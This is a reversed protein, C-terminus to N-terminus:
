GGKPSPRRRSGGQPAGRQAAAAAPAAEAGHGGRQGLGRLATQAAPQGGHAADSSAPGPYPSSGPGAGGEPADSPLSPARAGPDAGPADPAAVRAPAPEPHGASPVRGGRHRARPAAPAGHPPSHRRGGAQGPVRASHRGPQGAPLPQPRCPPAPAGPARVPTPGGQDAPHHLPLLRGPDQGRAASQRSAAGPRAGHRLPAGPAGEAQVG